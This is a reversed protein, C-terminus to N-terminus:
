EGDHIDHLFRSRAEVEMLRGSAYISAERLLQEREEDSVSALDHPDYGRARVFEDILSQELRGLSAERPRVDPEDSMWVELNTLWRLLRGAM